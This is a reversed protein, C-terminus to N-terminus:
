SQGWQFTTPQVSHSIESGSPEYVYEYISHFFVAIYIDATGKLKYTLYVSPSLISGLSYFM